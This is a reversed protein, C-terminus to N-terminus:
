ITPYYLSYNILVDLYFILIFQFYFQFNVLLCFSGLLKLPQSICACLTEIYKTSIKSHCKVIYKLLSILENEYLDVSLFFM